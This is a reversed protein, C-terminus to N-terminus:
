TPATLPVCSASQNPETRDSFQTAGIEHWRDRTHRQNHEITKKELQSNWEIYQHTHMLQRRRIRGKCESNLCPMNLILVTTWCVFGTETISCYCTETLPEMFLQLFVCLSLILPLLFINNLEDFIFYIFALTHDTPAMETVTEHTVSCAYERARTLLKRSCYNSYEIPRDHEGKSMMMMNYIHM